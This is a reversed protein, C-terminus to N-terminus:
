EAVTLAGAVQACHNVTPNESIIYKEKGQNSTHNEINNALVSQDLYKTVMDQKCVRFDSFDILTM